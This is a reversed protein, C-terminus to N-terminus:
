AHVISFSGKRLRTIPVTGKPVLQAPPEKDLCYHYNEIFKKRQWGVIIQPIINTLLNAYTDSIFAFNARPMDYVVDIIRDALIETSEAVGRGGVIYLNKPKILDVMMKIWSAYRIDTAEAKNNLEMKKQGPYTKLAATM